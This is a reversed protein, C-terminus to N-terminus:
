SFGKVYNVMTKIFAAGEDSAGYVTQVDPNDKLYRQWDISSM